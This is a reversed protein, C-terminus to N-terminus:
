LIGMKGRLPTWIDPRLQAANGYPDAKLYTLGGKLKLEFKYNDGPKADPIFIEFIGSDWLRRMQHTRGDWNNFDGVVSARMVSPAWVAFHVGEVGELIMPHAGLKEYVTYHIGNKFKETDKQTIQPAFRYAEGRVYENGDKGRVLYHYAPLANERGSVFAAFFGEEDALEMEVTEGDKEFVISAAEAGPFYAQVVTQRGSKHPGLLEHPNDSESYVIEEIGAWNMLGYLKKNM